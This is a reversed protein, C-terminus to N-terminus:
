KPSVANPYMTPLKIEPRNEIRIPILRIIRYPDTIENKPGASGNSITKNPAVCGSVNKPNMEIIPIPLPITIGLADRRFAKQEDADQPFRM